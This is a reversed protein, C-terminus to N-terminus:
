LGTDRQWRMIDARICREGERGMDLLERLEERQSRRKLWHHTEKRQPYAFKQAQLRAMEIVMEAVARAFSAGYVPEDRKAAPHGIMRLGDKVDLIGRDGWYPWEQPHGLQVGDETGDNDPLVVRTNWMLGHWGACEGQQPINLAASGTIYVGGPPTKPIRRWWRGIPERPIRPDGEQMIEITKMDEEKWALVSAPTGRRSRRPPRALHALALGRLPHRGRM